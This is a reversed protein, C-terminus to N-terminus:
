RVCRVSYGLSAKSGGPNSGTGNGDPSVLYDDDVDDSFGLAIGYAEGYATSSWYTGAVGKSTVMGDGGVVRRYGTSPLYMSWDPKGFGDGAVVGDIIPNPIVTENTLTVWAAGGTTPLYMSGGEIGSTGFSGGNWGGNAVGGVPLRWGTGFEKYTADARGFYYICPDGKGKDWNAQTNYADVSVNKITSFDKGYGPVYYPLSNENEPYGQGIGLGNHGAYYQITSKDFGEPMKIIDTAPDFPDGDVIGDMGILSGFKFFAVYVEYDSIKGFLTTEDTGNKDAVPTNKFRYDGALTLDRDNPQGPNHIYGIVGPAAIRTEHYPPPVSVCRVALAAYSHVNIHGATSSTFSLASSSTNNTSAATTNIGWYNGEVGVDFHHGSGSVSQIFGGTPLYLTGDDSIAGGGGSIGMDVKDASAWSTVAGNSRMTSWSEYSLSVYTGFPTNTNNHKTTTTWPYGTPTMWDGGEMLECIDGHGLGENSKIVFKGNGDSIGEAHKISNYTTIPNVSHDYEPNVWMVDDLSFTLDDKRSLIAVKSGWKFNVVYVPENELEGFEKDTVFRMTRSPNNAQGYTSSGRITLPEGYKSKYTDWGTATTPIWGEGKTKRENKLWDYASKKIGVVGPAAMVVEPQVEVCRIPYTQETSTNFSEISSKSAQLNWGTGADASDARVGSWYYTTSTLTQFYGGTGRAGAMPLFLKKDGSMLYGANPIGVSITNGYYQHPNGIPNPFPISGFDGWLGSIGGIPTMWNGFAACPDGHGAGPDSKVPYFTKGQDTVPHATDVAAGKFSNYDTIAAAGGTFEPNIWVVDSPSFPTVDKPHGITAIMSGWKYYVAYVPEKELGDLGLASDNAIAEVDTNKYLSSGKLTLKISPDGLQKKRGRLAVLDSEKIGIMGPAAHILLPKQVCRIAFGGIEGYKPFSPDVYASNDFELSSGNYKTGYSTTYPAATSSRYQATEGPRILNLLGNVGEGLGGAAPYFWGSEGTRTSLRGAPIDGGLVGRNSWVLNSNGYAPAGNYPNGTPMVWDGEWGSEKGWYVCPDGLGKDAMDALKYTINDGDKLDTGSDSEVPIDEWKTITGTYEKPRRVINADTLPSHDTYITAILSGWQFYTLYVTEGALGGLETTAYTEITSNAEYERSGKITLEGSEMGVGIVGPSALIGGPKQEITVQKRLNGAVVDFTARRLTAPGHNTDLEIDVTGVSVGTTKVAEALIEENNAWDTAANTDEEWYSYTTNWRLYKFNEIKWGDPHDTEITLSGPIVDGDAAYAWSNFPEPKEIKLYHEGNFIYDGEAEGWPRVLTNFTAALPSITLGILHIENMEFKPAAALPITYDKKAGDIEVTLALSIEEMSSQPLVILDGTVTAAATQGGPHRTTIPTMLSTLMLNKTPQMGDKIFHNTNVSIDATTSNLTWVPAVFGDAQTSKEDTLILSGGTKSGVLKVGTIRVDAMSHFDQIRASFQLRTLAHRFTMSVKGETSESFKSASKAAYMVDVHKAGDAPVTYSITLEPKETVGNLDSSASLAINNSTIDASGAHPYYALFSLENEDNDPWTVVPTGYDYLIGDDEDDNRTVAKDQLGTYKEAETETESDAYHWAFVGFSKGDPILGKHENGEGTQNEIPHGDLARTKVEDADGATIESFLVPQPGKPADPTLEVENSCASLALTALITWIVKKMDTQRNKKNMTGRRVTLRPLAIEDNLTQVFICFVHLGSSINTQV